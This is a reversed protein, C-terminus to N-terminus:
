QLKEHDCDGDDGSGLVNDPFVVTTKLKFTKYKTTLFYCM